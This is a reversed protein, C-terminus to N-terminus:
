AGLARKLIAIQGLHYIDHQLVGQLTQWQTLGSGLSPNREDRVPRDLDADSARGVQAVLEMHAARLRDLVAAWNDPTPDPMPPWDGEPPAGAPQGRFRNLVERKWGTTHLVLEWITHAGPIPRAAAQRADVGELVATMSSGYWPDGDFARELQDILRDALSTM